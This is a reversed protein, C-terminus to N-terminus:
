IRSHPPVRVGPPPRPSRRTVASSASEMLDFEYYDSPYAGGPPVAAPSSVPVAVTRGAAHDERLVRVVTRPACCGQPHERTHRVGRQLVARPRRVHGGEARALIGATAGLSGQSGVMFLYTRTATRTSCRRTRLTSSRTGQDEEFAEPNQPGATTNIVNWNASNPLSGAPGTFDDFFVTTSAGPAPPAPAPDVTITGDSQVTVTMGGSTQVTVTEPQSM